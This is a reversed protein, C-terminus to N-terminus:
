REAGTDLLEDLSARQPYRIEGPPRVGHTIMAIRRKVVAGLLAGEIWEGLSLGDEVAAAKVEDLTRVSLRISVQRTRRRPAPPHSMDKGPAWGLRALFRAQTRDLVPIM